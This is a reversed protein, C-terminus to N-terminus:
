MYELGIEIKLLFAIQTRSRRQLLEQSHGRLDKHPLSFYTDAPPTKYLGNIFKYTDIIWNEREEREIEFLENATAGLHRRIRCDLQLGILTQDGSFTASIESKFSM